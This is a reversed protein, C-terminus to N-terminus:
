DAYDSPSRPVSESETPNPTVPGSGVCKWSIRLCQCPQQEPSQEKLLWHNQNHPSSFFPGSVTSSLLPALSHLFTETTYSYPTPTPLSSAHGHFTPTPL